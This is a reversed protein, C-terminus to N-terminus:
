IHLLGLEHTISKNKGSNLGYDKFFKLIQCDEPNKKKLMKAAKANFNPKNNQLLSNCNWNAKRHSQNIILARSYPTHRVM